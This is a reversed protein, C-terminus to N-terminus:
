VCYVGNGHEARAQFFSLFPFLHWVVTSASPRCRSLASEGAGGGRGRRAACIFHDYERALTTKLEHSYVSDHQMMSPKRVASLTTRGRSAFSSNRSGGLLLVSHYVYRISVALM